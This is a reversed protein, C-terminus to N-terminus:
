LAEMALEAAIVRRYDDTADDVCGLTGLLNGQRDRLLAVEHTTPEADYSDPFEKVHDVYIPDDEWTVEWERRAAEREARAYTLACRMRSEALTAGPTTVVGGNAYFFAVAKYDLPM